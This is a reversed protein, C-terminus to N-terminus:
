DLTSHSFIGDKNFIARSHELGYMEILADDISDDDIGMELLFDAAMEITVFKENITKDGRTFIVIWRDLTKMLNVM